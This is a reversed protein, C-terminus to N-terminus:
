AAAEKLVREFMAASTEWTFRAATAHAAESMARWEGESMRAVKVIAGAMAAPDDMPVVMGGGGGILDPAPGAPTGIVPTRCAMAELLPLGFGESRSAFLWGDCSCYIRRIEEQPPKHRFETGAPLPLHESPEELGFALLRLDPVQKRALEVAELAVDCGKFRTRSYMVGVTPVPRKGRPEGHFVGHDVANPVVTVGPIGRDRALDALWQAVVVKKMPLRWTAKVRERGAPDTDPFFQSEDHQILYVKAGKSPSLPAVWEATEWWTAIIVDADPVDRDLLPRYDDLELMQVPLGDFHSPETGSRPFFQGKMARRLRERLSIKPYPANVACVTHGMAALRAAYTAIVRTGGSLNPKPQVITIRM